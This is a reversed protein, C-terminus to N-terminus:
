TRPGRHRHKKQVRHSKSQQKSPRHGPWGPNQRCFSASGYQMALERCVEFSPMSCNESPGMGGFNLVACWPGEAAQACPDVVLVGAAVAGALLHRKVRM